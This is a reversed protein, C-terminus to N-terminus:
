KRSKSRKCRKSRKSRKSGSHSLDEVVTGEYNYPPENSKTLHFTLGHQLLIEDEGFEKTLDLAKVWDPIILRIICCSNHYKFGSAVKDTESTAFYGNDKFKFDNPSQSGVLQAITQPDFGRYVIKGGFGTNMHRDLIHITEIYPEYLKPIHYQNPWLNRLIHNIDSFHSGIWDDVADEFTKTEGEQSM